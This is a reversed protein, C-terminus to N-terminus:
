CDPAKKPYGVLYTIRMGYSNKIKGSRWSYHNNAITNALALLQRPQYLRLVSVVGDWITCFPIVPILYTFLLRSWKFPMFFPTLFFFALPHLIVIALAFLLNKDGGDFIGIGENAKVADQIVQRATDEDFHHFASFITRIGKLSPTVNAANVPHGIFTIQGRTEQQIFEYAPKNPFLDTLVVPVRLSYKKDINEQVQAIAGGGGSCLDIIKDSGTAQLLETILSDVPEYFNGKSFIFRLYDTMGDRIVAPLWRQDEFEFLRITM